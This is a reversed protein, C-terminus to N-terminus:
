FAPFGSFAGQDRDGTGVLARVATQSCPKSRIRQPAEQGEDEPQEAMDPRRGHDGVAADPRQQEHPADEDGAAASRLHPRDQAVPLGHAGHRDRRQDEPHVPQDIDISDLALLHELRAEAIEDVRQGVDSGAHHQEALPQRAPLPHRDADGDDGDADLGSANAPHGIDGDAQRQGKGGVAVQALGGLGRRGGAQEDLRQHHRRDREAIETVREEVVAADARM